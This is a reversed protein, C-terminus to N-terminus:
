AVRAATPCAPYRSIIGAIRSKPWHVLVLYFGFFHRSGTQNRWKFSYELRAATM